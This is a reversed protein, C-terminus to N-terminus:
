ENIGKFLSLNILDIIENKKLRIYEVSNRKFINMKEDYEKIDIGNPVKLLIYFDESVINNKNILNKLYTILEKEYEDLIGINHKKLNFYKHINLNRNIIFIQFEDSYIDLFQRYVDNIFNYRELSINIPVIKYIIIKSDELEIYDENINKIEFFDNIDKNKKM